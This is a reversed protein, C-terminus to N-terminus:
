LVSFCLCPAAVQRGLRPHLLSKRRFKQFRLSNTEMEKVSRISVAKCERNKKLNVIGKDRKKLVCVIYKLHIICLLMAKIEGLVKDRAPNSGPDELPPHSTWHAVDGLWRPEKMKKRKLYKKRSKKRKSV